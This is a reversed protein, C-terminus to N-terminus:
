GRIDFLDNFSGYGANPIKDIVLDGGKKFITDSM